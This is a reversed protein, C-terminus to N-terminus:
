HFLRPLSSRSFCVPKQKKNGNGKRWNLYKESKLYAPWDKECGIELVTRMFAEMNMTMIKSLKHGMAISATFGRKSIEKDLCFCGGFM